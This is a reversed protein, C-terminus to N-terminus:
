QVSCLEGEALVWGQGQRDKNVDETWCILKIVPSLESEHKWSVPLSLFHSVLHRSFSTNPSISWRDSLSANFLSKLIYIFDFNVINLKKVCHDEHVIMSIFTFEIPYNEGTKRCLSHLHLKSTWYSKLLLTLPINQSWYLKLEMSLNQSM